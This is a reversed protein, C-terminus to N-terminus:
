GARDSQECLRVTEKAGQVMAAACHILWAGVQEPQGTAYGAAAARYADPDAAHGVEPVTVANPDLARETMVVRAAQRAVPGNRDSFPLVALLEGHVVAAVVLAPAETPGTLHRAMRALRGTDAGARPSGPETGGALLHMRAIAQLPATRLTRGLEATSALLPLFAEPADIGELGASAAAATRLAAATVSPDHRRRIRDHRLAGDVASRAAETAEFVGPLGLLPAFPDASASPV